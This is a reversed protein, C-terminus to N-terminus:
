GAHVARAHASGDPGDVVEVNVVVARGVNAVQGRGGRRGGVVAAEVRQSGKAGRYGRRLGGGVQPGNAQADAHAINRHRQRGGGRHGHGRARDRALQHVGNRAAVQNRKVRVGGADDARRHVQARHGGALHHHARIEARGGALQERQAVVGGSAFAAEVRHAQGGPGHRGHACRGNRERQAPGRVADPKIEVGGHVADPDDAGVQGVNAEVGVVAAKGGVIEGQTGRGAGGAVGVVLAVGVGRLEEVVIGHAAREVQM